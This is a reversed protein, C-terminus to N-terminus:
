LPLLPRLLIAYSVEIPEDPLNALGVLSYLFFGDLQKLEALTGHYGTAVHRCRYLM